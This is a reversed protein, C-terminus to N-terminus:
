GLSGEALYVFGNRKLDELFDGLGYDDTTIGYKRDLETLWRLAEDADGATYQLLQQFVDMLRDFPAKQAAHRAEDWAVYHFRM